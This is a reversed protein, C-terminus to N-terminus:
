ITKDSRKIRERRKIRKRRKIDSNEFERLYFAKM